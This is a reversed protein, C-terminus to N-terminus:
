GEGSKDWPMDLHPVRPSNLGVARSVVYLEAAGSVTISYVTGAGRSGSKRELCGGWELLRVTWAVRWLSWGSLRYFIEGQTFGRSGSAAVLGLM